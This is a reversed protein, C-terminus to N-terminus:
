PLAHSLCLDRQHRISVASGRLSFADIQPAFSARVLLRTGAAIADLLRPPLPHIVYHQNGARASVATRFFVPETDDVRVELHQGAAHETPTRAEPNAPEFALALFPACKKRADFYVMLYSDAYILSPTRSVFRDGRGPQDWWRWHGVLNADTHANHAAGLLALLCALPASAKV